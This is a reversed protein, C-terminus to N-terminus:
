PEFISRTTPKPVHGGRAANARKLKDSVIRFAYEDASIDIDEQKYTTRLSCFIGCM